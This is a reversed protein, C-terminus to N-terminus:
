DMSAYFEEEMRQAEARVQANREEAGARWNAIMEDWEDSGIDGLDIQVCMALLQRKLKEGPSHYLRRRGQELGLMYALALIKEDAERGQDEEDIRLHHASLGEKAPLNGCLDEEGLEPGDWPIDKDRNQRELKYAFRLAKRLATITETFSRPEPYIRTM